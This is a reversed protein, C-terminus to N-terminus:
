EALARGPAVDRTPITAAALPNATSRSDEQARLSSVNGFFGAVAALLMSLAAVLSRRQKLRWPIKRVQSRGRDDTTESKNAKITAASQLPEGNAGSEADGANM